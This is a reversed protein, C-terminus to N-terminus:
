CRRPLIFDIDESVPHQGPFVEEICTRGAEKLARHLGDLVLGIEAGADAAEQHVCIVHAESDDTSDPPLSSTVHRGSIDWM